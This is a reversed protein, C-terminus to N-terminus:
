RIQQLNGLPPRDLRLLIQDAGVRVRSLQFYALAAFFECLSGAGKPRIRAPPSSAHQFEPAGFTGKVRWGPGVGASHKGVL